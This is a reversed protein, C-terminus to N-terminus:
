MIQHQLQRIYETPTMGTQKKFMRSLHQPYEIGIDFAVESITKGSALGNKARIVLVNRIHNGATEGTTRKILDGLYNPSMCLKDAMYQITPIGHEFQMGDAFYKTLTEQFRTLIDSNDHKQTVFQRNYFRKCYKLLLNIYGIIIDDQDNDHEENIERQIAKLLSVIIDHEQKSMHLGENVHYQFFSYRHILKELPTGHLLDPHFLLAWGSITISEGDDQKGGIQGPSVCLLTSERYDYKGCGYQLSVSTDDRLFIAYVGYHNLSSRIPSIANYDIVSVLPHRVPQGLYTSYDGPTNVKLIKSM